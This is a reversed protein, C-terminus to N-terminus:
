LFNFELNVQSSMRREKKKRSIGERIEPPDNMKLIFGFFKRREVVLNGELHRSFIRYKREKIDM